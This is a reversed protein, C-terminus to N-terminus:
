DRTPPPEPLVISLEFEPQDAIVHTQSTRGGLDFDFSARGPRPLEIRFAGQADTRTTLPEHGPVALLHVRIKQDAVPGGARTVRGVVTVARQPAALTVEVGRGAEVRVPMDFGQEYSNSDSPPGLGLAYLGPRLHPLEFRGDSDTRLTEFFDGPDDQITITRGARPEIGDALRGEIWGLPELELVVDARAQGEVAQVTLTASRGVGALEAELLPEGPVVIPFQFHGQEDSRTEKQLDELAGPDNTLFSRAHPGQRLSVTAGAVPAGGSTVRGVISAGLPAVLLLEGGRQPLELEVEAGRGAGASAALRYLGPELGSISFAGEADRVSHQAPIGGAPQLVIRARALPRGAPDVVRGRLTEGGTLMLVLDREGALVDSRRVQLEARRRGDDPLLGAAALREAVEGRVRTSARLEFPGAAALGATSFRGEDDTRLRASALDFASPRTGPEPAELVFVTVGQAPTGDPWLLRGAIEAGSGLVLELDTREEGARLAGLDLETALFGDHDALLTRAGSLLGRLEFRGAEDTRVTRGFDFDGEETRETAVRARALPMGAPSRVTGALVVEREIPLELERDRGALLTLGVPAEVLDTRLAYGPSTLTVFLQSGAPLGDFRARGHGDFALTRFRMPLDQGLVRVSFDDYPPTAGEDTQMLRVLLRAGLRAELVLERDGIAEDLEVALPAALHHYGRDLELSARRAGSPVEFEFRGLSNPTALLETRREGVGIRLAVVLEPDLSTPTPFEVRGRLRRPTTERIPTEPGAPTRAEVEAPASEARPPLSAADVRTAGPENADAEQALADIRVSSPSAPERTALWWVGLIVGLALGAGIGVGVRSRSEEM